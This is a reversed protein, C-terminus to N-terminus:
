SRQYILNTRKTPLDVEFFSSYHFQNTLEKALEVLNKALSSKLEANDFWYIKGAYEFACIAHGNQPSTLTLVHPKYGLIKLVRFNLSAFDKCDGRRTKLFEDPEIWSEPTIDKQYVMNETLWASYDEISQIQNQRVITLIKEDIAVPRSILIGNKAIREQDLRFHGVPILGESAACLPLRLFGFGIAFFVIFSLRNLQTHKM